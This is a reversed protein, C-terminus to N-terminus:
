LSLLLRGLFLCVVAGLLYLIVRISIHDFLNFCFFVFLVTYQHLSICTFSLFSCSLIAHVLLGFMTSREFNVPHFLNWATILHTIADNQYPAHIILHCFLTISFFTYWFWYFTLLLCTHGTHM